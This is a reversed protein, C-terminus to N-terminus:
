FSGDSRGVIRLDWPRATFLPRIPPPGKMMARLYCGPDLCGLDRHNRFAARTRFGSGCIKFWKGTACPGTM